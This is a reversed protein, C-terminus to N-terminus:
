CCLWPFRPWYYRTETTKRSISKMKNPLFRVSKHVAVPYLNVSVLLRCQVAFRFYVPISKKKRKSQVADFDSRNTITKYCIIRWEASSFTLRNRHPYHSGFTLWFPFSHGHLYTWQLLYFDLFTASCM